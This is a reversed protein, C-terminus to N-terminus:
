AWPAPRQVDSVRGIALTGTGVHIRRREAGLTRAGVSRRAASNAGMHWADMPLSRGALQLIGSGVRLGCWPQHSGGSRDTARSDGTHYHGGGTCTDRTCASGPKRSQSGLRHDSSRGSKRRWLGDPVADVRFAPRRQTKKHSEHQKGGALSPQLDSAM